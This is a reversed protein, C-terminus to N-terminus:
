WDKTLMNHAAAPAQSGGEGKAAMLDKSGEGQVPVAVVLMPDSDTKEAVEHKGVVEWGEEIDQSPAAATTNENHPEEDAFGEFEDEKDTAQSKKEMEASSAVGVKQKKAIPEDTSNLETTPPDPLSAALSESTPQADEAPALPANQLSTRSEPLDTSTPPFFESYYHHNAM